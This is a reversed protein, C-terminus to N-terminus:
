TLLESDSPCRDTFGDLPQHGEAVYLPSAVAQVHDLMEGVDVGGSKITALRRNPVQELHSPNDLDRHGLEGETSGGVVLEGFNRSKGVTELGVHRDVIEAAEVTLEVGGNGLGTSVRHQGLHVALHQVGVCGPDSAKVTCAM